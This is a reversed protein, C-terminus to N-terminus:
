EEMEIKIEKTNVITNHVPCNHVFRLFAQRRDRLEADTSIGVKIDRLMLVPQKVWEGSVKIKLSSFKIGANKLYSHAYYMICGGISALFLESSNLGQPTYGEKYSDIICRVGTKSSKAEFKKDELYSLEVELGM